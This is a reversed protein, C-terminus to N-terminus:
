VQRQFEGKRRRGDGVASGDQVLFVGNQVSEPLDFSGGFEAGSDENAARFFEHVFNADIAELRTIGEKDLSVGGPHRSLEGSFDVLSNPVCGGNRGIENQPIRSRGNGLLIIGLIQPHINEFTKTALILFNGLRITSPTILAHWSAPLLSEIETIVARARLIKKHSITSCVSAAAAAADEQTM